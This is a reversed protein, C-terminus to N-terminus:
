KTRLSLGFTRKIQLDTMVEDSYKEYYRSESNTGGFNEIRYLRDFIQLHLRLKM